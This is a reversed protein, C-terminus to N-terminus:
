RSKIRARVGIVGLMALAFLLISSPVPVPTTSPNLHINDPLAGGLAGVFLDKEELAWFSFSQGSLWSGSLHGNSYSFNSGFINIESDDSVLLWSLDDLYSINVQSSDYAKIWSIDGGSINLTSDDNGFLWSIEGGSVNSTSQDYNYMWAIDGGHVNVTSDDYASLRSVNEGAYIDAVNDGVVALGFAHPVWFSFVTVFIRLISKM